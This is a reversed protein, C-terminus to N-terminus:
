EPKEPAEPPASQLARLADLAQQQQTANMARFLTILQQERNASQLHAYPNETGSQVRLATAATDPLPLAGLLSEYPVHFLKVLKELTERPPNTHGREYYTYTSRHIKLADAVQQQTLGHSLRVHRLREAFSEPCDEAM